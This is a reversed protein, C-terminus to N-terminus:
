KSMWVTIAPSDTMSFDGVIIDDRGNRDIDAIYISAHSYTSTTLVHKSFGTDNPQWVVLGETERKSQAKLLSDPIFASAVIEEKGDGDLDGLLARHAGPLRGILHPEFVMDGKNELWHVGHSPKLVFSDFSDGNTYLIDIRGDKNMDVLEIGSSGFSPEPGTFVSRRDFQGKGDNIFADIAEFEQGLLAIFDLHGDNNLDIMPVHIAGPRPDVQRKVLGPEGDSKRSMYFVSGTTQWGFEAVLLDDLGDEDLDGLEVSAVRGVGAVLTQVEFQAESGKRELWVVRGRDHDEPLFSGLDAIMLDLLGDKNWDCVRVVAPNAVSGLEIPDALKGAELKSFLIAGGRMDSFLIGTGLGGQLDVFDIFSVAALTMQPVVMPKRDFRKLWDQNVPDPSPLELKEPANEVFFRLTDNVIPPDLDTRGSAYYFAYGRQVEGHWAEKPFTTPDPMAHCDSCFAKINQLTREGLAPEASAGPSPKKSMCGQMAAM